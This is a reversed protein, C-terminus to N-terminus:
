DVNYKAISKWNHVLDVLENETGMFPCKKVKGNTLYFIIEYGTAISAGRVQASTGGYEIWDIDEFNITVFIIKLPLFFLSYCLAFHTDYIEFELYFLRYGCYFFLYIIVIFFIFTIKTNIDFNKVLVLWILFLVLINFVNAIIKNLLPKKYSAIPKNKKTTIKMM